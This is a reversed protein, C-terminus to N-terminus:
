PLLKAGKPYETCQKMILSVKEPYLWDDVLIYRRNNSPFVQSCIAVCEFGADAVTVMGGGVLRGIIRCNVLIILPM